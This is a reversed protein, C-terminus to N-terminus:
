NHTINNAHTSTLGFTDFDNYPAELDFSQHNDTSTYSILTVSPNYINYLMDNNKAQQLNDMARGLAISNGLKRNWNDKVSCYAWGEASLGSAQDTVEIRTYRSAANRINDPISSAEQESAFCGHIVRVKYGGRRLNEITHQM